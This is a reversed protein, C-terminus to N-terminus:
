IKLIRITIRLNTKQIEMDLGMKQAFELRIRWKARFSTCLIDQPHSELFVSCLKSAFIFIFLQMLHM